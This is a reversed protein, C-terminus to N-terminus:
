NRGPVPIIVSSPPSSFQENRIWFMGPNFGLNRWLANTEFDYTSNITYSSMLGPSERPAKWYSYALALVPKRVESEDSMYIVDCYLVFCPFPFPFSKGFILFIVTPFACAFVRFSLWFIKVTVAMRRLWFLIFTHLCVVFIPMTHERVNMRKQNPFVATVM